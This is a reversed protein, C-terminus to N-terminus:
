QSEGIEQKYYSVAIKLLDFLCFVFVGAVFFLASFDIDKAPDSLAEKVWVCILCFGFIVLVIRAFSGVFFDTTSIDRYKM